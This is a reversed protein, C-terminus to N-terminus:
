SSWSSFEHNSTKGQQSAQVKVDPTLPMLQKLEGYIQTFNMYYSTLSPDQEQKQPSFFAKCVEYIRSINGKGSFLFELYEMLEKVYSCHTLSPLIDSDISNQIQLFLRADDRIWTKSSDDTPPTETLHGEKGISLLYLRITKNWDHYNKRTLKHESIKSIVPVSDSLVAVKGEAMSSLLVEFLFDLSIGVFLFAVVM